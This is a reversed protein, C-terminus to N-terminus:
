NIIGACDSKLAAHSFLWIEQGEGQTGPPKHSQKQAALHLPSGARGTARKTQPKQCRKQEPQM